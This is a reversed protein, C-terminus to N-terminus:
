EGGEPILFKTIHDDRNELANAMEEAVEEVSLKNAPQIPAGEFFPTDVAGPAILHIKIQRELVLPDRRLWWIYEAQAAKATAYSGAFLKPPFNRPEPRIIASGVVGLVSSQKLCCSLTTFVRQLGRVYLNYDRALYYEHLNYLPTSVEKMLEGRPCHGVSYVIGDLQARAEIGLFSSAEEEWGIFRAMTLGSFLDNFKAESRGYVSVEAGRSLLSRVIGRGIFGTGGFVAYTQGKM